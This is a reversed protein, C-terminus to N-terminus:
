QCKNKVQLSLKCVPCTCSQFIDKQLYKVRFHNRCRGVLVEKEKTNNILQNCLTYSFCILEETQYKALQQGGEKGHFEQKQERQYLM